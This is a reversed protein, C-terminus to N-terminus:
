MLVFVFDRIPIAPPALGLHLPGRAPAPGLLVLPDVSRAGFHVGCALEPAFDWHSGLDELFVHLFGRERMPVIGCFHLLQLLINVVLCDRCAFLRQQCVQRFALQAPQGFGQFIVPLQLDQAEAVNLHTFCLGLLEALHPRRAVLVSTM